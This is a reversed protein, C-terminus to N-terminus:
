GQRVHEPAVAVATEDVGEAVDPGHGRVLFVHRRLLQRAPRLLGEGVHALAGALRGRHLGSLRPAPDRCRGAGRGPPGPSSVGRAHYVCTLLLLTAHCDQPPRLADNARALMTPSQTTKLM